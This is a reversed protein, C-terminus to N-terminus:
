IGAVVLEIAKFLGSAALNETINRATRLASRVTARKPRPSRRQADITAIEAALEARDDPELADLEGADEAHQYERLVIEIQKMEPVTLHVSASEDGGFEELEFIIGDLLAAAEVSADHFAGIEEERYDFADAMVSPTWRVSHFAGVAPHEPPLVNRLVVATRQRWQQLGADDGHTLAGLDSVQRRLLGIARVPDAM